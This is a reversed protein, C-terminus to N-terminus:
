LGVFNISSLFTGFKLLFLEVAGSTPTLVAMVERTYAKEDIEDDFAARRRVIIDLPLSHSLGLQFNIQPLPLPNSDIARCAADLLHSGITRDGAVPSMRPQYQIPLYSHRFWGANGQRGM